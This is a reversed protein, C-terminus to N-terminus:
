NAFWNEVHIDGTLTEYAEFDPTNRTVLILSRTAAVAAIQGDVFPQSRGQAELAARAEGHWRAAERDYPIIPMSPRVVEMLYDALYARRKGEPMRHVGYVLEHWAPAPLAVEGGHADLHDVVAAHPEPRAPESVINTDLLYRIV